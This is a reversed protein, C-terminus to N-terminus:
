ANRAGVTINVIGDIAVLDSDVSINDRDVSINILAVVPIAKANPQDAKASQYRHEPNAAVRRSM